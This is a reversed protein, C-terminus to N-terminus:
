TVQRLMETFTTEALSPISKTVNWNPTQDSTTPSPSLTIQYHCFLVRVAMGVFANLSRRIQSASKRCLFFTEFNSVFSPLRETARGHEGSQMTLSGAM